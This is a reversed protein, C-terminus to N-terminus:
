RVVKLTLLTTTQRGESDQVTVRIQHEGPPAEAAALDIGKESLGGRVRDLLDVTPSRLYIVKVSSLDIRAGGRPEFALRLPFPSTVASEPSVVRVGPGRAIGRTELAAAPAPPLKAESEKILTAAAATGVGAVLLGLAFAVGAVFQRSNM